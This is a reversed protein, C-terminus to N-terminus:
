ERGGWMSGPHFMSHDNREVIEGGAAQHFHQASLFPQPPPSPNVIIDRDREDNPTSLELDDSQAENIAGQYNGLYFENKISFLDDSMTERAVETASQQVEIFFVGSGFPEM